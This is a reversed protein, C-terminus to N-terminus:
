IAALLTGLNEGPALSLAVTLPPQDLTLKLGKAVSECRENLFSLTLENEAEIGVRGLKPRVRDLGHVAALWGVLKSCLRNGSM